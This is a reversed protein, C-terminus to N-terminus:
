SSASAYKKVSARFFISALWFFFAALVIGGGLEWCDARGVLAEAPVTIMLGVPIIWTLILQLGHPYIRVPFRGMQIVSDLIWMLPTGLYWFAASALILLFSYLLTLSVLLSLLFVPMNGPINIGSNGLALGIVTLAAALDILAWPSWKHTSVHLQTPVPKLLLFDFDGTWLAGDLGALASLSPGICLNKLARILLYVGFLVLTHQYNWGNISDTQSFLIYVGGLGGVLSLASNLLNIFFQVRFALEKQLSQIFTIKLLKLYAM